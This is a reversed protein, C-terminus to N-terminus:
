ILLRASAMDRLTPHSLQPLVTLFLSSSVVVAMAAKKWHSKVAAWRSGSRQSAVTLELPESWAPLGPHGCRQANYEFDGERCPLGWAHCTRPNDCVWRYEARGDGVEFRKRTVKHGCRCLFSEYM